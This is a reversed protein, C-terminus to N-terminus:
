ALSIVAYQGEGRPGIFKELSLQKVCDTLSIKQFQERESNSIDFSVSYSVCQKIWFLILLINNGVLTSLVLLVEDHPETFTSYYTDFYKM